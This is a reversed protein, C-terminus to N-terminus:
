FEFSSVRDLGFHNHKKSLSSSFNGFGQLVDACSECLAELIYM